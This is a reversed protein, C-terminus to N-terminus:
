AGNARRLNPQLGLGSHEPSSPMRRVLNDISESTTTVSLRPGFTQPTPSNPTSSLSDEENDEKDMQEVFSGLLMKFVDGYVIFRECDIVDRRQDIFPSPFKSIQFSM